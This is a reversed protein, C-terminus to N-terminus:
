ADEEGAAIQEQEEKEEEEDKTRRTDLEYGQADLEDDEEDAAQRTDLEYGQADLEDDEEDDAQRTDLEYGEADLQEDDEGAAAAAEKKPSRAVPAPAPAASLAGQVAQADEPSEAQLAALISSVDDQRADLSQSLPAAAALAALSLIVACRM